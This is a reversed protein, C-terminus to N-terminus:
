AGRKRACKEWSSENMAMHWDTFLNLLHDDMGRNTKQFVIEYPHLNMGFYAGPGLADQGGVSKQMDCYQEPSSSHVSTMMVDVRYGQSHFLRAM